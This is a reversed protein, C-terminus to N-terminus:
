QISSLTAGVEPAPFGMLQLKEVVTERTFPKMLYEDAGVGLVDRVSDADNETSVIMVKTTDYDPIARLKRVFEYGNMVPMNWDTLVVDVFGIGALATLASQGDPVCYTDFGAGTLVRKLLSRMTSSDDAVLARM